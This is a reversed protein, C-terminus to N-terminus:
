SMQANAAVFLGFLVLPVIAVMWKGGMRMAVLSTIVGVLIGGFGFIVNTPNSVFRFTVLAVVVYICIISGAVSFDLFGKYTSAHADMGNAAHHPNHSHDAM